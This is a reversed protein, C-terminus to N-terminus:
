PDEPLVLRFGISYYRDTPTNHSRSAARLYDPDTGWSGGRVVRHDGISTNTPNVAVETGSDFPKGSYWDSCWEWVNGALDLGGCWSKGDPCSGVPQAGDGRGFVALSKNPEAEGWPYTRGEPGRTAYEWEWEWETPLRGRAWKCYDVADQWDVNVVPLPDQSTPPMDEPLRHGERRCFERYQGVTVPTEGLWFGRTILVRQKRGSQGRGESEDYPLAGPSVWVLRAGNSATKLEGAPRKLDRLFRELDAGVLLVDRSMRLQQLQDCKALPRFDTIRPSDTLDLERLWGLASIGDLMTLGRPSWVARSGSVRSLVTDFYQVQDFGERARDLHGFCRDGRQEAYLALTALSEDARDGVLGSLTLISFQLQTDTWSPNPRLLETALTGAARLASASADSRPPVIKSAVQRVQEAVDPDLDQCGGMSALALLRRRTVQARSATKPVRLLGLILDSNDQGGGLAAALRIVEEWLPDDAAALMAGINRRRVQFRAAYYEMFSKHVFDLHGERPSRVLAVRRVLYERVALATCVEVRSPIRALCDEISDDVQKFTMEFIRNRLMWDAMDELCRHLVGASVGMGPEHWPMGRQSDMTILLANSCREYLDKRDTPLRRDLGYLACIMAVLLPSDALLRLSPTRAFEGKLASARLRLQSLHATDEVERGRGVAEHWRDILAEAEVTTFPALRREAFARSKLWNRPLQPRSTVVVRCESSVSSRLLDKIWEEVAEHLEAPAEDVGDILILARGSRLLRGVWGAPVADLARGGIRAVWDTLDPLLIKWGDGDREVFERLRFLFPIHRGWDALEPPLSGSASRVALWQVLTSKGSGAPGLLLVRQLPALSREIPEPQDSASAGASLRVYAISLGYTRFEPEVDVGFLRLEDLKEGVHWRYRREFEKDAADGDLSAEIGRLRELVTEMREFHARWVYAEFNAAEPARLCVQRAIGDLVKEVSLKLREEGLDRVWRQSADKLRQAVAEQDLGLRALTAVDLTVDELTSGLAAAASARRGDDSSSEGVLARLQPEVGRVIDRLIDRSATSGKLHELLGDVGSKLLDPGLGKDGVLQQIAAKVAVSLAKWFLVEALAM